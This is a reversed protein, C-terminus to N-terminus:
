GRRGELELRRRMRSENAGPRRSVCNCYTSPQLLLGASLPDTEIAKLAPYLASVQLTVMEVLAQDSFCRRADNFVTDSVEPGAIVADLFALLAKEQTSWVDDSRIDGAM